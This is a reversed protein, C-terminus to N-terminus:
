DNLSDSLAAGGGPLRNGADTSMAHLGTASSTTRGAKQMVILCMGCQTQLQVM